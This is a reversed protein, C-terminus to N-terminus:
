AFKSKKESFGSSTALAHKLVTKKSSSQSHTSFRSLPIAKLGLSTDDSRNSATVHM